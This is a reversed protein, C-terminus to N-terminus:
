GSKEIWLDWFFFFSGGRFGVWCDRLFTAGFRIESESGDCAGEGVIRRWGPRAEGGDDEAVSVESVDVAPDILEGLDREGTSLDDREAVIEEVDIGPEFFM